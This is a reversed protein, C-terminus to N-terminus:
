LNVVNITEGIYVLAKRTVKFGMKEV